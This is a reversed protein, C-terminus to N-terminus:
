PKARDQHRVHRRYTVVRYNMCVSLLYDTHTKLNERPHLTPNRDEPVQRQTAPNGNESTEFSRIAKKKMHQFDKTNNHLMVFPIINFHFLIYVEDIV